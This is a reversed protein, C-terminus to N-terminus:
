RQLPFLGILFGFSWFKIDCYSNKDWLTCTKISFDSSDDTMCDQELKNLRKEHEISCLM